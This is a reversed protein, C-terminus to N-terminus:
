GLANSWILLYTLVFLHFGAPESYSFPSTFLGLLFISVGAGLACILYYRIFRKRGWEAEVPLGFMVLIYMNIIIHFIDYRSHLFSYTIIQWIKLNLVDVPTLAFFSDIAGGSILQLIFVVINIFVLAFVSYTFPLEKRLM